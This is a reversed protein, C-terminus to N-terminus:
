SLAVNYSAVTRRSSLAYDPLGQSSAALESIIPDEFRDLSRDSGLVGLKFLVSTSVIAVVIFLLALFVTRRKPVAESNKVDRESTNLRKM